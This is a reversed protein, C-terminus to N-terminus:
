DCALVQEADSGLRVEGIAFDAKGRTELVFPREVKAVDAGKSRFCKLPIGYRV